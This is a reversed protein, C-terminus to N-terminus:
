RSLPEGGGGLEDLLCDTMEITCLAMDQYHDGVCRLIKGALKSSARLACEGFKAMADTADMGNQMDWDLTAQCDDLDLNYETTADRECRNKAGDARKKCNQFEMHCKQISGGCNPGIGAADLTALLSANRTHSRLTHLHSSLILGCAALYSQGLAEEEEIFGTRSVVTNSIDSTSSPDSSRREWYRRTQDLVLNYKAVEDLYSFEGSLIAGYLGPLSKELAALQGDDLTSPLLDDCNLEAPVTGFREARSQAHVDTIGLVLIFTMLATKSIAITFRSHM